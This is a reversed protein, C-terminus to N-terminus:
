SERAITAEGLAYAAEVQQILQRVRRQELATPLPLEPAAAQPTQSPELAPATAQPQSGDSAQTSQSPNCGALSFALLACVSLRFQNSTMHM